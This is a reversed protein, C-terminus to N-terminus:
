TSCFRRPTPASLYAETISMGLVSGGQSSALLSALEAGTMEARYYEEVARHIIQFPIQKGDEFLGFTELSGPLELTAHVIDTRVDQTPNFVVLSTQHPADIRHAIAALNEAIIPEVIQEVWDFRLRMEAHTQDIGCGCISDHPHNQLLYKWAISLMARHAFADAFVSFPEAWKELLMQSHANRQKIWMRASAVGPLLHHKKCDRLEGHVVQLARNNDVIDRQVQDVYMPLSAHIIEADTIQERAGRLLASLERWPEMHDTGQMLLFNDTVSHPALSDRLEKVGEVFGVSDRPLWAANDYSDRLYCLLVRTGDPSQWWLETPEDSLGRRLAAVGLGFGRLIQPMQSVHGFPDPIYAVPMAAGFDQAVRIGRQLNRIVAEGSVLFEDPLVYWPGIQLKGAAVLRRLISENEPRIELYDDLVITQGDLLFYKYEADHAFIDLLQDICKILRARFVQFPAYWERDWHTHSVFFLKQM